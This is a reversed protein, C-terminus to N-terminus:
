SACLETFIKKMRNAVQSWQYKEEVLRRGNQILKQRLAEDSFLLEIKEALDKPDDVKAFLGTEGGKLFDPIGGVKTGIIPLGAAMAELFATGLGESRSPRVFIDAEWLHRPIEEHPAGSIIRLEADPFKKKVIVFAKELIDVGNKYALRSITIIIKKNESKPNRNEFKTLEVGNPVVEIKEPKAGFSIALEKLYNSIVQIKDAKRALIRWFLGVLGFRGYRIHRESDGEQITLLFPIKPYLFKLLWAGISGYSVMMGWFM